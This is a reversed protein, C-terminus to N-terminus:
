QPVLARSCSARRAHAARSRVSGLIGSQLAQSAAEEAFVHAMFQSSPALVLADSSVSSGALDFLVMPGGEKGTVVGGTPWAGVSPGRTSDDIFTGHWGICGLSANGAHPALSFSPFASLTTSPDDSVNTRAAGTTWRQEFEIAGAAAYVKFVTSAKFDGSPSTYALETQTYTGLTDTASTTSRAPTGLAAGSLWKGGVNFGTPSSTLWPSGRVLISYSSGGDASLRLELPPTGDSAAAAATGATTALCSALFLLPAVSTHPMARKCHRHDIAGGRPACAAGPPGGSRSLQWDPAPAAPVLVLVLLSINGLLM